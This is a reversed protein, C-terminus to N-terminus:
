TKEAKIRMRLLGQQFLMLSCCRVRKNWYKEKALLESWSHLTIV